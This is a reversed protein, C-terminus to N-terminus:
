AYHGTTQGSLGISSNNLVGGITLRGYVSISVGPMVTVLSTRNAKVLAETMEAFANSSAPGERNVCTEGEFPLYLTDAAAIECKRSIGSGLWSDRLNSKESPDAKAVELAKEISTYYTKSTESYKIYCVAETGESITLGDKSADRKVIFAGHGVGFLTAAGLVASLLISKGKRRKM